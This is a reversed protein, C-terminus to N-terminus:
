RVRHVEKRGHHGQTVRPVIRGPGEREQDPGRGCRVLLHLRSYLILVNNRAISWSM